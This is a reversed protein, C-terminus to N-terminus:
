SGGATYHTGRQAEIADAIQEVFAGRDRVARVRRMTQIAERALQTQPGPGNTTPSASPAPAEARAVGRLRDMEDAIAGTKESSPASVGVGRMEDMADAILNHNCTM